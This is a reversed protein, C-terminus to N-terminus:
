DDACGLPLGDMECDGIWCVVPGNKVLWGKYLLWRKMEEYAKLKAKLLRGAEMSEVLGGTLEEGNYFAVDQNDITEVSIIGAESLVTEMWDLVDENEIM